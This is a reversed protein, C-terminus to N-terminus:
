GMLENIKRGAAHAILVAEKPEDTTVELRMKFGPGFWGVAEVFISAPGAAALKQTVIYVAEGYQPIAAEIPNKQGPPAIQSYGWFVFGDENVCAIVSVSTDAGDFPLMHREM